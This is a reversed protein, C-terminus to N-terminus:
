CSSRCGGNCHAWVLRDATEALVPRGMSVPMLAACFLFAFVALGGAAVLFKIFAARLRPALGPEVVLRRDFAARMGLGILPAAVLGALAIAWFRLATDRTGGEAEVHRVWVQPTELLVPVARIAQKTAAWIRVTLKMGTMLTPPDVAPPDATPATPQVGKAALGAILGKVQDPSMSSPLQLVVTAGAPEAAWGAPTVCLLLLLALVLSRAPM